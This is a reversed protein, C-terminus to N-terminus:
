VVRRRRGAQPMALISRWSGSVPSRGHLRVDDDGRWQRREQVIGQLRPILAVVVELRGVLGAQERRLSFVNAAQHLAASRQRRRLQQVREGRELDNRHEADAVIANRDGVALLAADLHGVRRIYQGVVNGVNRQSQDQHGAAAKHAQVAEHLSSFPFLAPGLQRCLETASLDADEAQATDALRDRLADRRHFHFDCVGAALRLIDRIFVHAIELGQSRGHIEEDDRTWAAVRSAMDDVGAYERRQALLARQDVDCTTRDDILRRQDRCKGGAGDVTRPEIHEGVFRM